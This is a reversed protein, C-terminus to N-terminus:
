IKIGLQATQSHLAGAEVASCGKPTQALVSNYARHLAEGLNAALSITPTIRIVRFEELGTRDQLRTYTGLYASSGRPSAYLGRKFDTHKNGSYPTHPRHPLNEPLTSAKVM